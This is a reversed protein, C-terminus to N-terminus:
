DARPKRRRQLLLAVGPLLGGAMMALPSGEPVSSTTPTLQGHLQVSDIEEWASPNHNTDTYIKIGKVQYPTEAWNVNFDVPTGPASPDTGTWVTHLVDALDLVDVQYVFGNGYTERITAGTAYVNTAFGLTIYELTGNQPAPAWATSIDGYAFTNPAGLAQSASWNGGSWQSSFGIVSSAYQDVTQAHAARAGPGLGALALGLVWVVKRM